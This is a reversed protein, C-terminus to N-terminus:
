AAGGSSAYRGALKKQLTLSAELLKDYTISGVRGLEVKHVKPKGNERYGQQLSARVGNKNHHHHSYVTFLGHPLIAVYRRGCNIVEPTLESHHYISLQGQARIAGQLLPGADLFPQLERRYFLLTKQTADPDLDLELAIAHYSQGQCSMTLIKAARLLANPHQQARKLGFLVSTFEREVAQWFREVVNAQSDAIVYSEVPRPIGTRFDHPSFSDYADDKSDEFAQDEIYVTRWGKTDGDKWRWANGLNYISVSIYEMVENVAATFAYPNPKDAHQYLMVLATQVMDPWHGNCADHGIKFRRRAKGAARVAWRTVEGPDHYDIFLQPLTQSIM